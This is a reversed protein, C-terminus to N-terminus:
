LSFVVDRRDETDSADFCLDAEAMKGSLLRAAFYSDLFSLATSGASPASSPALSLEVGVPLLFPSSTNEGKPRVGLFLVM